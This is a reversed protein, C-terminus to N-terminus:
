VIQALQMWCPPVGGTFPGGAVNLAGGSTQYVQVEVFDMANLFQMVTVTFVASFGGGTATMDAEAIRNGGNLVIFVDRTGVANAAFQVGVSIIYFGSTPAVLRSPFSSSYAATSPNYDVTDWIITTGVPGANPIAQNNALHVLLKNNNPLLPVLLSDSLEYIHDYADRLAKWLEDITGTVKHPYSRQRQTNTPLAPITSPLIPMPLQVGLAVWVWQEFQIGLGKEKPLM